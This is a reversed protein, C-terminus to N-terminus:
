IELKSPYNFYYGQMLRVGLKELVDKQEKTEIGEVIVQKGKVRAVNLIMKVIEINSKDKIGDVFTKDVKIIDFDVKNLISLSSYEKGFDDIAILYGLEKLRKIQEKCLNIKDIFTNENIEICIDSSKLKYHDTIKKLREPFNVQLLKNRSINITVKLHKYRDNQKIASFEKLTTNIITQDLEIMLGSEEALPIFEGPLLTTNSDDKWRVLAEIFTNQSKIVDYVGQYVMFFEESEIAQKIKNTMNFKYTVDEYLQKTIRVCKKSSHRKSAYMAIDAYTILELPDKTDNPYVALGLSASIGLTLEDLFYPESFVSQLKERYIELDSLSDFDIILLLFEDGSLRSVIKNPINIYKLRKAVLKIIDDGIDHGYFDNINKFEDIDIFFAAIKKAHQELHDLYKFIGRRNLLGTLLDHEAEYQLQENAKKLDTIDHGVSFIYSVHDQEDLIADHNWIIYKIGENTVIKNTRQISYPPTLLKKFWEEEKIGHEKNIDFINRGILEKQDRNFVKFLSNSAFLLTGNPDIKAILDTSHEVVLQYEEKNTELEKRTQKLETIDIQVGYFNHESETSKQAVLLVWAYETMQELKIRYEVRFESDENSIFKNFKERLDIVDNEHIYRLYQRINVSLRQQSVKYRRMCPASFDIVFQSTESDYECYNIEGASTFTEIKKYQDTILKYRDDSITIYQKLSDILSKLENNEKYNWNFTSVGQNIKDINKYGTLIPKVLLLYIRLIVYLGSIYLLSMNLVWLNEYVNLQDEVTQNIHNFRTHVYSKLEFTMEEVMKMNNKLSALEVDLENKNQNSNLIMGQTYLIMEVKQSLSMLLPKYQEEDEYLSDLTNALLNITADKDNIAVDTFHSNREKKGTFMAIQQDYLEKYSVEETTIYLYFSDYTHLLTDHVENILALTVIYETTQKSKLDYLNHTKIQSFLLTTFLIMLMLLMKVVRTVISYRKTKKM